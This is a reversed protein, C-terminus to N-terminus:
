LANKKERESETLEGELEKVRRELEDYTPRKTM